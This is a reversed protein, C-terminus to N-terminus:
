APQNELLKKLRKHDETFEKKINGALLPEAVKFFGKPDGQFHFSLHTGNEVAELTYSLEYSVPGSTSKVTFSQGPNHASVEWTTEVRRGMVQRVNVGTSGVGLPGTSTLRQEILASQWQSASNPDELLAWVVELPRQITEAFDVTIM